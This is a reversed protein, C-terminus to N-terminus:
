GNSHVHLVSAVALAALCLHHSSGLAWASKEEANVLEVWGEGEALFTGRSGIGM